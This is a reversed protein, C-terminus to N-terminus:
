NRQQAHCRFWNRPGRRRAACRVTVGRDFANRAHLCLAGRRIAVGDVRAALATLVETCASSECWPSLWRLVAESPSGHVLSPEPSAVPVVPLPVILPKPHTPKWAGAKIQARTPVCQAPLAPWPHDPPRYALCYGDPYRGKWAIPYYYMKAIAYFDGGPGAYDWGMLKAIMYSCIERAARSTGGGGLARIVFPAVLIGELGVIFDISSNAAGRSGYFVSLESAARKQAQQLRDDALTEAAESYSRNVDGKNETLVM